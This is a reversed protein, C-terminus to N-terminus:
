ELLPIIGNGEGARQKREAVSLNSMIVNWSLPNIPKTYEVKGLKKGKLSLIIAIWAVGFMLPLDHGLKIEIAPKSNDFARMLRKKENDIYMAGVSIQLIFGYFKSLGEVQSDIVAMYALRDDFLTETLQSSDGGIYDVYGKFIVEHLFQKSRYEDHKVDSPKHEYM